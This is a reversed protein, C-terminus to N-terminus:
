FKLAVGFRGTHFDADVDFIHTAGTERVTNIRVNGFDYYAYEAIFVINATNFVQIPPMWAAGAGLTYGVETASGTAQRTDLQGFSGNLGDGNSAEIEAFALGGTAFVMLSQASPPVFGLRGRVSGFWQVDTQYVDDNGPPNNDFVGDIWSANIEGNVGVVWNSVQHDYGVQGGVFTGSINPGFPANLFGFADTVISHTGSGDGYGGHAGLYFGTWDQAHAPINALGALIFVTAALRTSTKELM